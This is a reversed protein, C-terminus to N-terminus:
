FTVVSTWREVEMQVTETGVVEELKLTVLIKVRCKQYKSQHDTQHYLNDGWTGFTRKALATNVFNCLIQAIQELGNKRVHETIIKGSSNPLIHVNGSIGRTSYSWHLVM